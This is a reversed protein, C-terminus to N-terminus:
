SLYQGAVVPSSPKMKQQSKILFFLRTDVPSYGYYLRPIAPSAVLFTPAKLPPFRNRDFGFNLFLRWNQRDHLYCPTHRQRPSRVPVTPNVSMSLRIWHSLLIKSVLVHPCFGLRRTLIIKQSADPKEHSRGISIPVVCFKALRHKWSRSLPSRGVPSIVLM